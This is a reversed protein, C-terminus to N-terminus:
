ALGAACIGNAIDAFVPAASEFGYGGDETMVTVIYKPEEAPFWGTFWGITLEAGSEDYRGTQATGTKGAATRKQPKANQGTGSQVAERMLEAVTDAASEALARSAQPPEIIKGGVSKIVTPELYMGGMAICRTYTAVHLPTLLLTGQGFCHNCLEGTQALSRASPFSSAATSLGECLELPRNLGLSAATNFIANAGLEQGLAIFYTNCSNVVAGRMDLEGHAKSDNCAYSHGNVELEGICNFYWGESVGAGLASTAIVPKYISGVNYAALARNFLPLREDNIYAAIDNQNFSPFSALARLEATEADLVVVAGREIKDAAASEVIRQVRKDITLAVGAGLSGRRTIEVAEGSKLEGNANVEYSALLTQSHESLYGELAYELGSAGNGQADLTGILHACLADNGFRKAVSLTKQATSLGQAGIEVAFPQSGEMNELFELQGCEEIHPLLAYGAATKPFVLALTREGEGTLPEGNIDYFDPRLQALEVTRTSQAAAAEALETDTMLLLLRLELSMLGMLLAAFVILVKKRTM